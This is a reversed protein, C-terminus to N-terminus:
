GRGSTAQRRKRRHKGSGARRALHPCGRPRGLAFVGAPAGKPDAVTVYFNSHISCPARNTSLMSQVVHTPFASGTCVVGNGPVIGECSYSEANLAQGTMPDQVQGEPDFSAVEDVSVVSYGSILETCRFRYMVDHESKTNTVLRIFGDCSTSSASAPGAGVAAALFAATVGGFGVLRRVSLKRTRGPLRPIMAITM